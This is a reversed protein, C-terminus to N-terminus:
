EANLAARTGPGVIGLRALGHKAQYRMVAAKTLPGFKGNVPGTYVGEKTLRKQLEVVATGSSRLALPTFFKYSAVASVNQKSKLVALQAQLARLQLVLTDILSGQTTASVTTSVTTTSALSQSQPLASSTVARVIIQQTTSGVHGLTDSVSLTLIHTGIDGTGPTWFFYGASNINANTVSSGVFSDSVSYTTSSFAKPVVTFNTASGLNVTSQTLGEINVSLPQVNVVRLLSLSHGDVGDTVTISLSHTGTEGAFPTWSFNGAADLNSSSVTTPSFSDHVSFLPSSFGSTIVTFTVHQGPPVTAGVTSFSGIAISSAPNVTIGQTASSSHGLADTATITILHSGVDTATPLWSFYGASNINSNSISGAFSDSASYTPHSFGPVSASFTVTVGANVTTSPSPSSLTMIPSTVTITQSVSVGGSSDGATIVFSHTGIDNAAPTWSLSGSANINASSLTTGGFNDDLSFNPNTFGSTTITLSLPTGVPLSAGPSLSQISITGSAQAVSFPLLLLIGVSVATYFSHPQKNFNM